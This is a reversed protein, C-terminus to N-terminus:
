RLLKRLETRFEELKEEPSLDDYGYGNLNREPIEILEIAADFKGRAAGVAELWHFGDRYFQKAVRKPGGWAIQCDLHLRSLNVAGTLMTFAPHNLAKHAKTYGWGKITLDTLTARNKCGITALFAHLATTDELSFTNGAYLVPQTEDYIARNLLLINHNLVPLSVASTNSPPSLQMQFRFGRRRRSYGDPNVADSSRQVSRRYRKTKSVLFIGNPDTLSLAYIQNKLEAPLSTFPFIKRKPLPKTSAITRSDKLKKTAKCVQDSEDYDEDVEGEDSSSEHYSIEARKRKPYARTTLTPTM